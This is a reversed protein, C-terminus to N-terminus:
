KDFRHLNLGLLRGKALTGLMLLLDGKMAHPLGMFRDDSYPNVCQSFSANVCWDMMYKEIDLNCLFSLTKYVSLKQSLVM